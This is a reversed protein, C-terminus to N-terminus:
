KNIKYFSKTELHKNDVCHDIMDNFTDLLQESAGRVLHNYREINHNEPNRLHKELDKIIMIMKDFYNWVNKNTESYVSKSLSRQIHKLHDMVHAIEGRVHAMDTPHCVGYEDKHLCTHEIVSKACTAMQEIGEANFM